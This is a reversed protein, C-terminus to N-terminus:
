FLEPHKLLAKKAKRLARGRHSVRNKVAPPLEAYTRSCGKPIFIPDYGFGNRGRAEFAIKGECEGRVVGISRGNHYIAIVSVFTASRKSAPVNRMLSLVKANNDRYTCGPGAFRASYVGPKGNLRSIMLGSDDALTLMRTHKSYASAKIRANREFTRGTEAAEPCGPFDDLSLVRIGAGKLLSQLERQKDKNHTGLVISKM